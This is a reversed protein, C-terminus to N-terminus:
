SEWDQKRKLKRLEENLSESSKILEFYKSINKWYNNINNLIDLSTNKEFGHGFIDDM